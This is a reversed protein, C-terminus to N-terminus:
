QRGQLSYYSLMQDSRNVGTKHKNYDLVTTRRIKHAEKSLPAEVSEGEHVSILFFVDCTDKWKIALLYDGKTCVYM